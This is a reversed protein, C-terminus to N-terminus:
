NKELELLREKAPRYEGCRAYLKKAIEVDCTVEYICGLYYNPIYSNHGEEIYGFTNLAKSFERIAEALFGTKLYIRGMLCLYDAVAEFGDYVNELLLADGYEGMELLLNGYVVVMLQVYAKDSDVPLELAKELFQRTKENNGDMKYAMALQFYRYPDEPNEKVKKELDKIKKNFIFQRTEEEGYKLYNKKEIASRAVGSRKTYQAISANKM